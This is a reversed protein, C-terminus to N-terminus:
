KKVRKLTEECEKLTEGRIRTNEYDLCVGDPNRTSNSIEIEPLQTTNNNKKTMEEVRGEAKKRVM